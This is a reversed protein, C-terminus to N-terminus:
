AASRLYFAWYGQWPGYREALKEFDKETLLKRYVQSAADLTPQFPHAREMRGLGRVMIFSASWEGIGEIGTLWEYVDDYHGTRLFAEDVTSFAKAVACISRAKRENRIVSTIESPQIAAITRAAPFAWYERGDKELRTGFREVFRKKMGKSVHLQIQQGLVAWVANEFPTMFKVHHFGRM